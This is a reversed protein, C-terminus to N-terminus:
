DSDVEPVVFCVSALMRLGFREGLESHNPAGPAILMHPIGSLRGRRVLSLTGELDRDEDNSVM